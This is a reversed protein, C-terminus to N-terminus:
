FKYACGLSINSVSVRTTQAYLFNRDRDFVEFQVETNLFSFDILADFQYVMPIRLSFDLEFTPVMKSRADIFLEDKQTGEQLEIFVNPFKVSAYGILFKVDAYNNELEFTGYLGGAIGKFEWPNTTVKFFQNPAANQLFNNLWVDPDQPNYFYFAKTGIGFSEGILYDFCIQYNLGTKALGSSPDNLDKNGYDSLPVSPGIGITTLFRTESEEKVEQSYAKNALIFVFVLLAIIQIHSKQM